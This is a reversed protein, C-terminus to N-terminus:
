TLEPIKLMLEKSRFFLKYNKRVSLDQELHSIANDDTCMYFKQQKMYKLYQVFFSDVNDQNLKRGGVLDEYVILALIFEGADGGPSALVADKNRGDLCRFSAEPVVVYNLAEINGILNRIDDYNAGQGDREAHIRLKSPDCKPGNENSDLGQNNSVTVPNCDCVANYNEGDIQMKGQIKNNSDNPNITEDVEIFSNIPINSSYNIQIQILLFFAILFTNNIKITKM